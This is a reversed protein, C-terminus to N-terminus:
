KSLHSKTKKHKRLEGKTGFNTSCTSCGFPKKKEHVTSIHISLTFLTSMGKQCIDCKFNKIKDHIRVKHRELGYKNAFSKNCMPCKFAKKGEHVCAVHLQKNQLTKFTKNCIKCLKNDKMCASKTKKPSAFSGASRKTERKLHQEEVVKTEAEFDDQIHEIDEDDNSQVTHILEHRTLNNSQNFAKSCYKCSFLKEVTHIREHQTLGGSQRFAKPCYKCSYPKEGTHIREHEKWHGKNIFIKKCYRCSYGKIKQLNTNDKLNATNKNGGINREDKTSIFFVSKPKKRDEASNVIDPRFKSQKSCKSESGEKYVEITNPYDNSNCDKDYSLSKAGDKTELISLHIKIHEKVEQIEVFSKECYKCSFPKTNDQKRDNLNKAIQLKAKLFVIESSMQNNMSELEEIKKSFELKDLVERIRLSRTQSLDMTPNEYKERDLEEFLKLITEEIKLKYEKRVVHASEFAVHKQEEYVEFPEKKIDLIEMEALKTPESPLVLDEIDVKEEFDISETMELSSQLDM